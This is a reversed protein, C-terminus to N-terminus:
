FNSFLPYISMFTFSLPLFFTAPLSFHAISFKLSIAFPPILSLFLSLSSDLFNHSPPLILANPKLFIHPLPVLLLQLNSLPLFLYPKPSLFIQSLYFFKSLIPLLIPIQLLKSPLTFNPTFSKILSFFLYLQNKFNDSLFIQLTFELPVAFLSLSLLFKTLSFKHSFFIIPTISM